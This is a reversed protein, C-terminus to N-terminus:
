LDNLIDDPDEKDHRITLISVIGDIKFVRFIIKYSWKKTYRVPYDLKESGPLKPKSEPLKELKRATSTLGRRVKRAVAPSANKEHYDSIERLRKRSKPSFIVRFLKGVM